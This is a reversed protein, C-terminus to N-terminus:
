LRQEAVFWVTLLFFIISNLLLIMQAIMAHPINVAIIIAPQPLL